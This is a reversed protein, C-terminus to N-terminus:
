TIDTVTLLPFMAIRILTAVIYQWVFLLIYICDSAFYTFTQQELIRTEFMMARYLRVIPFRWPTNAAYNFKTLIASTYYIWHFFVFITNRKTFNATQQLRYVMQTIHLRERTFISGRKVFRVSIREDRSLIFLFVRIRAFIFTLLFLGCEHEIIKFRSLITWKITAIYFNVDWYEADSLLNTIQARFYRNIAIKDNTRFVHIQKEDFSERNPLPIQRIRLM